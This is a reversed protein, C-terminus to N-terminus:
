RIIRLLRALYLFSSKMYVYQKKLVPGKLWRHIKPLGEYIQRDDIDQPPQSHGPHSENLYLAKNDHATISTSGEQPEPNM